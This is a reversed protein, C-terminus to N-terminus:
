WFKVVTNDYTYRDFLMSFYLKRKEILSYIFSTEWLRRYFLVSIGGGSSKSQDLSPVVRPTDERKLGNTHWGHRYLSTTFLRFPNRGVARREFIIPTKRKGNILPLFRFIWLKKAIFLSIKLNNRYNHVNGNNLCFAIVNLSTSFNTLSM